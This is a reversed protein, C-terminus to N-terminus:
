GCHFRGTTEDSMQGLTQGHGLPHPALINPLTVASTEPQNILRYYGKVASWDGKAVGSFARGPVEAKAAVMSVLKKSLRADGLPAGGFEHQAWLDSDLGDSPALAARGVNPSLGMRARFNDELPYVYIAKLSLAKKNFRDQRGRGQTKGVKIWNAARYCAGSFSRAISSVRWWGPATAM